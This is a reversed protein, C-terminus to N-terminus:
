SPNEKDRGFEHGQTPPVSSWPEKKVKSEVVGKILGVNKTVYFTDSKFDGSIAFIGHFHLADLTGAPVAVEKPTQLMYTATYNLDIVRRQPM